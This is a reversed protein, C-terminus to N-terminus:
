IVSQYVQRTQTALRNPTFDKLREFGKKVLELRLDSKNIINEVQFMIEEADYPNFYLGANQAVEPFSSTTSLAVPCGCAFAELIPIGFGEYLSPYVFATANQYLRYLIDDNPIKYHLFRNQVKLHHFLDVEEKTFDNSGACIIRLDKDKILLPFIAKTFAIFNKYNERNGVYLLYREPVDITFSDSPKYSIFHTTHHVVDIKEYPVNFHELVDCKTNDSVAIIKSAGNIIKQKHAKDFGDLEAYKSSFKEPIVDHYTIVYPRKQNLFNLFYGNFYTPHFVDFNNRMVKFASNLRNFHSVLKNTLNYGLVSEYPKVNILDSNHLYVNNSFVVSLEVEIGNQQQLSQILDYFYRAVGGYKTGSFSQHDYLIKM